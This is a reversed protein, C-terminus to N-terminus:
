LSRTRALIILPLILGLERQDNSMITMNTIVILIKGSHKQKRTILLLLLISACIHVFSVALLVVLVAPLEVAPSLLMQKFFFFIQPENSIYRSHERLHKHKNGALVSLLDRTGRPTKRKM